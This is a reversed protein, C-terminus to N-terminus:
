EFSTNCNSASSIFIDRWIIINKFNTHSNTINVPFGGDPNLIWLDYTGDMTSHYVIRDGAWDPSGDTVTNNTHQTLNTGDWTFIENDGDRISQFTIPASLIVDPIGDDAVVRISCEKGKYDPYDAWADWTIQLGTASLVGAGADGSITTCAIPVTSGRDISLYATVTMPDGDADFLDYSIDVLHTFPRQEAVVNSVEPPTNAQAPSSFILFGLASFILFCTHTKM